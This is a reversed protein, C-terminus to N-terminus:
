RKGNGHWTVTNPDINGDDDCDWNGEDSVFSPDGVWINDGTEAVFWAGQNSNNSVDNGRFENGCSALEARMGAEGADSMTNNWVRNHHSNEMLLGEFRAGVLSNIKIRSECINTAYISRAWQGIVENHSIILNSGDSVRIGGFARSQELAIIRNGRIITFDTPRERSCFDREGNGQFHVGTIVPHYSVFNNREVVAATAGMFVACSITGCTVDNRSFRVADAFSEEGDNEARYASTAHTADLVLREIAVGSASVGVLLGIEVDAVATLGSHKTACTLTISDATILLTEELEILGDIAIVQGPEAVELADLLGGEDSVVYDAATPCSHAGGRGFQPALLGNTDSGQEACGVALAVFVVAELIRPKPM